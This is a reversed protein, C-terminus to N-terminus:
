RVDSHIHVCHVENKAPIRYEILQTAIKDEFISTNNMPRMMPPIAYEM